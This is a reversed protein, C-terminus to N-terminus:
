GVIKLIRDFGPEERADGVVGVLLHRQDIPDFRLEPLLRFSEIEGTSKMHTRIGTCEMVEDGIRIHEEDAPMIPLDRRIYDLVDAELKKLDIAPPDAFGIVFGHKVDSHLDPIPYGYQRSLILSTIDEASHAMKRFKVTRYVIERITEPHPGFVNPRAVVVEEGIGLIVQANFNLHPYLLDFHEVVVRRRHRIATAVAEAIEWLQHFAQEYRVDIHYTHPGFRDAEDFDFLPAARLNIGEDDNTLELGPFVGRILTSKGAGEAGIIGVLLDTPFLHREAIDRGLRYLRLRGRPAYYVAYILTEHMVVM